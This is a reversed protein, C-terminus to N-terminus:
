CITILFYICDFIELYTKNNTQKGTWFMGPKPNGTHLDLSRRGAMTDTERNCMTGDRCPIRLCNLFLSTKGSCLALM